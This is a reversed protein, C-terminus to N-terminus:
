HSLFHHISKSSLGCGDTMDSKAESVLSIRTLIACTRQTAVSWYRRGGFYERSPSSAWPYFDFSWSENPSGMEDDATLSLADDICPLLDHCYKGPEPEPM